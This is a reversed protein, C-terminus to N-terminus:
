LDMSTEWDYSTYCECIVYRTQGAWQLASESVQLCRPVTPLLQLISAVAAAATSDLDCVIIDSCKGFAPM